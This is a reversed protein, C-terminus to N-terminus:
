KLLLLSPKWLYMKMMMLCLLLTLFNTFLLCSFYRCGDFCNWWLIIIQKSRGGRCM